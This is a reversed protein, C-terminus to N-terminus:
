AAVGSDAFGCARMLVAVEVVSVVEVFVGSLLSVMELGSSAKGQFQGSDSGRCEGGGAM